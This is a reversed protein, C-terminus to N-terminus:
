KRSDRLCREIIELIRPGAVAVDHRERVKAQARRAFDRCRAPDGMLELIRAAMAVTNLYSVVFGCDDEVFEPAGGSQAFCLLPKGLTAAELLVLPCPDERSMLCFADFMAIYDIYNRRHDVFHIKHELGLKGIDYAIERPTRREWFGGVWVFRVDRGPNRRLTELALPVFLDCGKRWDVTGAAGVVFSDEPIGLEARLVRAAEESRATDIGDFPIFDHVVEINTSKLAHHAVLNEAVATSGAIFQSTRRLTYALEKPTTSRQIMYELEHSHSILPCRQDRLGELLRGNVLTNSYILAFPTTGLGLRLPINQLAHRVRYPRVYDLARGALSDPDTEFVATPALELFQAKLPGSKKLAIRFDLKSHDRLWRLLHLLLFPAGTPTADHSIFLVPGTASM